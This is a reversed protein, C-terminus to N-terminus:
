AVKAAASATVIWSELLKLTATDCDGFSLRRPNSSDGIVRCTLEISEKSNVSGIFIRCMQNLMTKPVQQKLLMGGVSVNSSFTRFSKGGSFLIVRFEVDYRQHRRKGNKRETMHFPPPEGEAFPEIHPTADALVSYTVAAPAQVVE